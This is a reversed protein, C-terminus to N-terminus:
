FASGRYTNGLVRPGTGVYNIELDRTRFGALQLEKKVDVTLKCGCGIINQLPNLLRQARAVNRNLSLGHELFIFQGGPKLVRRIECLARQVDVITCLTFTSVITDFSRDPYPLHEAVGSRCDVEVRSARMKEWLKERMGANPEIASINKVWLPYHPLNLGTGIGLELIQGRVHELLNERCQEFGQHGLVWDFYKPFIVESYFKM